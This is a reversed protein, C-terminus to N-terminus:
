CPTPTVARYQSPKGVQDVTMNVPVTSNWGPLLDGIYDVLQQAIVRHAKASPHGGCWNPSVDYDENTFNMYYINPVGQKVAQLCADCSCTVLGSSEYMTLSHSHSRSAHVNKAHVIM